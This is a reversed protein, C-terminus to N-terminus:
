IASYSTAIGILSAVGAIVLIDLAIAIIGLILGAKAMGKAGKKGGIVGFVIALIACPISLYWICFLSVSVIGLIMAAMSLGKQEKKSDYQASNGYAGAVDLVRDAIFDKRTRNSEVIAEILNEPVDTFNAM